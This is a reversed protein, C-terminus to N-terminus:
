EIPYICQTSVNRLLISESASYMRKTVNHISQILAIGDVTSGSPFVTVRVNANPSVASVTVQVTDAAFSDVTFRFLALTRVPDRLSLASSVSVGDSLIATASQTVTLSFASDGSLGFSSVNPTVAIHIPACRDVTFNCIAHDDRAPDIPISVTQSRIADM